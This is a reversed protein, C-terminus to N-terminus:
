YSLNTTKAIGEGTDDVRVPEGGWWKSSWSGAASKYNFTQNLVPDYFVNGVIGHTEPYLGTV